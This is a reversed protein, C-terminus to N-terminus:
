KMKRMETLHAEMNNAKKYSAKWMHQPIARGHKALFKLQKYFGLSLENIKSQTM